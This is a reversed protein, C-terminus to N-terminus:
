PNVWFYFDCNKYRYIWLYINIKTNKIKVNIKKIWIDYERYYLTFVKKDFKWCCNFIKVIGNISIDGVDMILSGNQCM